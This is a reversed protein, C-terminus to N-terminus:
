KAPEGNAHVDETGAGGNAHVDKPAIQEGNAHVDTPRLDQDTKKQEGM